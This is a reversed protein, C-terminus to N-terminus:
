TSANFRETGLRFTASSDDAKALFRSARPTRNRSFWINAQNTGGTTTGARSTIAIAAATQSRHYGNFIVAQQPTGSVWLSDIDVRRGLHSMPGSFYALGGGLEVFRHFHNSRQYRVNPVIQSLMWKVTPRSSACWSWFALMRLTLAADRTPMRGACGLSRSRGHRRETRNRKWFPRYFSRDTRRAAGQNPKNPNCCVFLIIRISVSELARRCLRNQNSFEM